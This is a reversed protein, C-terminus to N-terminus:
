RELARKAALFGIRILDRKTVDDINFDFSNHYCDIRIHITGESDEISKLERSLFLCDIVRSNYEFINGIGNSDVSNVKVGITRGYITPLDVPYNNLIGGDVYVLGNKRYYSFINPIGISCRIAESVSLDYSSDRGVVLLRKNILDTVLVSFNVMLDKFSYPLYRRLLNLIRVGKILGYGSYKSVPFWNRDFIKSFDLELLLSEIDNPTYGASYLGGVLSGGSVGVVERIRYDSNYYLYKLVGVYCFFNIGSGGLVLRIDM